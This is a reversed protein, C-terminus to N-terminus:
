MWHVQLWAISVSPAARKYLRTLKEVRADCDAQQSKCVLPSLVQFSATVPKTLAEETKWFSVMRDSTAQSFLPFHSTSWFAKLPTATREKARAAMAAGKAESDM